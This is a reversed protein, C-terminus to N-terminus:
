TQTSLNQNPCFVFWLILFNFKQNKRLVEQSETSSPHTLYFTKACLLASLRVEASKDSFRNLLEVFVDRYEQAVHCGSLAFLRGILNIAKIRVDVQDTQLCTLYKTVWLFM